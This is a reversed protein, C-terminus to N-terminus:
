KLFRLKYITGNIFGSIEDVINNLDSDQPLSGRNTDVFKQLAMFYKLVQDDGELFQNAPQYGMILGHRGQCTEVYKDILEVIGNYYKDLAKHMAYSSTQLHFIHAQERSSFLTSIFKSRADM